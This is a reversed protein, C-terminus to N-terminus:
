RLLDLGYTNINGNVAQWLWEMCTVGQTKNEYAVKDGIICHITLNMGKQQKDPVDFFYMGANPVTRQLEEVMKCIWEKFQEGSERSFRFEGNRILNVMRALASDKRSCSILIRVKNGHERHLAQLADLTINDTHIREAIERPACWVREAIDHWEDMPLFGSDVLCTMDNCGPYISLITDTLLAAGFGGGSCGCVLMAGPEPVIEKVTEMVKCFNTYGHHHCLRKSGDQATYPFDGAGCHFDGTSYPMVLKSWNRFPNRESDEFIGKHLSLDSFLDVQIMYYTDEIKKQYLSSPRAATYENWSVGGGQFFILMKNESGLRFDAYVPDGNAAVCGPAPIRYWVGKEPTGNLYPFRKKRLYPTILKLWLPEREWAELKMQM